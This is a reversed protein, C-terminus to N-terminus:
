HIKAGRLERVTEMAVHTAGSSEKTRKHYEYGEINEIVRKQELPRWLKSHKEMVKKKGSLSKEIKM